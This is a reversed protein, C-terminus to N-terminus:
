KKASKKTTAKAAAKKRKNYAIRRKKKITKNYQKGMPSNNLPSLTRSPRPSLWSHPFPQALWARRSNKKLWAAFDPESMEGAALALTCVAADAETAIFRRGNLELFTVAVGKPSKWKALERLTHRHRSMVDQVVAMQRAVEPKASLRLTGDAAETIFVTDGEAARLHTLAEKPLIVGVSNGIKRLKLELNM